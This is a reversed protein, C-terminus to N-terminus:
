AANLTLLNWMTQCPNQAPRQNVELYHYNGAMMAVKGNLHKVEFAPSFNGLFSDKIDEYSETHTCGKIKRKHCFKQPALYGNSTKLIGPTSDDRVQFDRTVCKLETVNVFLISGMNLCQPAGPLLSTSPDSCLLALCHTLKGQCYLQSLCHTITSEGNRSNVAHHARPWCCLLAPILARGGLLDTCLLKRTAPCAAPTSPPSASHLKQNIKTNSLHLSPPLECSNGSDSLSQLTM